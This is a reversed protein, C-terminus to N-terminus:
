KREFSQTRPAIEMPDTTVRASENAAEDFAAVEYVYQLGRRVTDDTWLASSTTAVLQSPAGDQSRYIHYGALDVEAGAKWQLTLVPQQGDVVAGELDQVAAPAVTDGVPATAKDSSGCGVVGLIAVLAVAVLIYQKSM